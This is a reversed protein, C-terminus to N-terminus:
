HMRLSVRPGRTDLHGMGPLKLRTGQIEERYPEKDKYNLFAKFSMQVNFLKYM